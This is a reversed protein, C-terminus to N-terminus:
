PVLFAQSANILVGYFRPTCRPDSRFDEGNVCSCETEGQKMGTSTNKEEGSQERIQEGNRRSALKILTPKFWLTLVDMWCQWPEGSDM